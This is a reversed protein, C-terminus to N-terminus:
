NVQWTINLDRFATLYEDLTILDVCAQAGPQHLEGRAIKQALLVSPICPIFPGDNSRATLEFCIDKARGDAGIGSLRMHFGSDASGFRNFGDSIKLLVPAICQMNRVLRLRVLWSLCWLGLHLLPLEVGARFRLTQIGPYRNPFLRLDPIACNSLWRWGIHPYRRLRLGQWGYITKVAGNILTTFPKGTYGLIAQTTALGRTSQQATTIGYDISDLSKFSARYHDILAASFCPVSSAGSIVMVSRARAADDLSTINAVFDTGDALDIYHCGQAICAQAVDYGQNQFPGSTHIVIDPRIAALREPLRAHVDIYEAQANLKAALRQAKELSRGAIILEISPDNSLRASIFRGFNGYGGIVLVRKM